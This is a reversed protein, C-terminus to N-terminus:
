WPCLMLSGPTLHTVTRLRPKGSGPPTTIKRLLKTQGGAAVTGALLNLLDATLAVGDGHQLLAHEAVVHRGYLLELHADLRRHHM